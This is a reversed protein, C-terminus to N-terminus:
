KEHGHYQPVPRPVPPTLSPPPAHPCASATFRAGVHCVPGNRGRGGAVAPTCVTKFGGCIKGGVRKELRWYASKLAGRCRGGGGGPRLRLLVGSSVWSGTFRAPM